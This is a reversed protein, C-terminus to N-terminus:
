NQDPMEIKDIVFMEFPEKREEVSLGLQKAAGALDTSEAATARMTVGISIRYFGELGTRDVVPRDARTAGALALALQEMSWGTAPTGMSRVVGVDPMDVDFRGGPDKIVDTVKTMKLGNKGIVLTYVSLEKTERRVSLKFRDAFLTQVMRRCEDQSVPGAARAEIDFYDFNIPAPVAPLQFYQLDYAWQLVSRVDKARAIFRGNLSCEMESVRQAPQLKNLKVSTVEFRPESPQQAETQALSFVVCLWLALKNMSLFYSASM